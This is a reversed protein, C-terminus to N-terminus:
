HLPVPLQIGGAVVQQRKLEDNQADNRQWCVDSHRHGMCSPPLRLTSCQAASIAVVHKRPRRRGIAASAESKGLHTKELGHSQLSQSISVHHRSRSLVSTQRHSFRNHRLRTPGHPLGARGLCPLSTYAGAPIEPPSLSALLGLRQHCAFGRAQAGNPMRVEISVM